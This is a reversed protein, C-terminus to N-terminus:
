SKAKALVVGLWHEQACPSLTPNDWEGNGLCVAMRCYKVGCICGTRSWMEEASEGTVWLPEVTIGPCAQVQFQEEGAADEYSLRRPSDETSSDDESESTLGSIHTEYETVDSVEGHRSQPCFGVDDVINRIHVSHRGNNYQDATTEVVNATGGLTHATTRYASHAPVPHSVPNRQPKSKRFNHKNTYDLKSKLKSALRRLLSSFAM